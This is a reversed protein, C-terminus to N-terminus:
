SPRYEVDINYKEGPLINGTGADTPIIIEKPLRVFSFQQPLLSHNEMVIQAKSASQNFVNGFDILPPSFTISNVSFCCLINFKVPLVQNAGVVKIPIRMTFEEFEDKPPLTEDQRVL